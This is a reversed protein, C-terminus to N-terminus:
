RFSRLQPQSKTFRWLTWDAMSLNLFIFINNKNEVEEEAQKQTHKKGEIGQGEKEERM